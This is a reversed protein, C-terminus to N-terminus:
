TSIADLWPAAEDNTLGLEAIVETAQRFKEIEDTIEAIKAFREQLITGKPVDQKFSDDFGVMVNVLRNIHGTCCLGFAESCEQYLRMTLERRTETNEVMKIRAWLRRLLRHYMWDNQKVCSKVNWWRIMDQYLREDPPRLTYIQTWATRIEALTAQGTPVEVKMLIDVGKNTQESVATTHVNQSDRTIRELDTRPPPLQQGGAGRWGRQQAMAIMDEMHPMPHMQMAEIDTLTPNALKANTAQRTLMDVIPFVRNFEERTM